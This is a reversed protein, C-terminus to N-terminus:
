RRGLVHHSGLRGGAWEGYSWGDAWGEGTLKRSGPSQCTLHSLIPFSLQQLMIGLLVQSGAEAEERVKPERDVSPRHVSTRDQGETIPFAWPISLSAEQQLNRSHLWQGIDVAFGKQHSIFLCPVSLVYWLFQKHGPWCREKKAVHPM